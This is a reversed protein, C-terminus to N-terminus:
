GEGVSGSSGTTLNFPRVCAPCSSSPSVIASKVAATYWFSNRASPPVSTCAITDTVQALAPLAPWPPLPSAPSIMMMSVDPEIPTSVISPALAAAIAASLSITSPVQNETM